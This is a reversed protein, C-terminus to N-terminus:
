SYEIALVGRSPIDQKGQKGTILFRIFLPETNSTLQALRSM